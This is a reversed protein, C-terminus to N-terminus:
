SLWRPLDYNFRKVFKNGFADEAWAEPKLQKTTNDWFEPNLEVHQGEAKTNNRWTKMLSLM